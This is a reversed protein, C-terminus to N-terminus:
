RCDVTSKKSKRRVSYVNDTCKDSEGERHAQLLVTSAAPHGAQESIAQMTREEDLLRPDM